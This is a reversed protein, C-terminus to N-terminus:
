PGGSESRLTASERKQYSGQNRMALVEDVVFVIVFCSFTGHSRERECAECATVKIVGM